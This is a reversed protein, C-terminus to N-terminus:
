QCSFSSGDGEHVLRPKTDALCCKIALPPVDVFDEGLSYVEKLSQRDEVGNDVGRFEVQVEEDDHVNKWVKIVKARCWEGSDLLRVAM